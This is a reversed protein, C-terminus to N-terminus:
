PNLSFLKYKKDREIKAQSLTRPPIGFKHLWYHINKHPCLKEIEESSLKEEIYKKYLWNKDQYLKNM